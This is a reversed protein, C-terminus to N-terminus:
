GDPNVRHTQKSTQSNVKANIVPLSNIAQAIVRDQADKEARWVRENSYKNTGAM